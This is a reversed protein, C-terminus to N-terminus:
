YICKLRVSSQRRHGMHSPRSRRPFTNSKTISTQNDETNSLSTAVTDSSVSKVEVKNSQDKSITEDNKIVVIEPIEADISVSKSQEKQKKDNFNIIEGNYENIFTTPIITDSCRIPVYVKEKKLSSKIIKHHTPKPNILGESENENILDFVELVVENFQVSKRRGRTSDKKKLASKARKVQHLNYSLTERNNMTEFSRKRYTYAFM